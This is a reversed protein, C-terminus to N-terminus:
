WPIEDDLEKKLPPGALQKAPQEATDSGGRWGVVQLVPRSKRGFRTMMPASRLAVVPVANPHALRMRGIQDGLQIVADRGGYSSTSFTFAEATQDDVLYVFRTNQWPDKPQGDPGLEWDGANNDGLEDRHPLPKGAERVLYQVPKGAQWKTWAAATALATLETGSPVEVAEKGKTWRWDAFKLLTGRLLRANAEAAADDWGDDPLSNDRYIEVATM